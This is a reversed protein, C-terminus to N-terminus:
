SKLLSSIEKESPVLWCVILCTCNKGWGQNNKTTLYSKMKHIKKGNKNPHGLHPTQKEKASALKGLIKKLRM